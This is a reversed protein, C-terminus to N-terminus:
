MTAASACVTAWCNRRCIGTAWTGPLASWIIPITAPSRPEAAASVAVLRGDDLVLGDGDALAEAEALDLLFALGNVGTMAMRRRHRHDFDLVVTDAAAGSWDGKRRLATARLMSRERRNM